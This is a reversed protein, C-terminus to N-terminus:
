VNSAGSLVQELLSKRLERTSDIKRTCVTQFEILARVISLFTNIRSSELIPIEIDKVGTLRLHGVTSGGTLQRMEKRIRPLNLAFYLYESSIRDDTVLVRSLDMSFCPAEKEDTGTFFFPAGVLLRGPTLDTNAFFLDGVNAVNAPAFDLKV